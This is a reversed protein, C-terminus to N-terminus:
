SSKLINVEPEVTSEDLLFTVFRRRSASICVQCPRSICCFRSSRSQPSVILFKQHDRHPCKNVFM